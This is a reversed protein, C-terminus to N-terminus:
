LGLGSDAVHMPPAGLCASLEQTSSWAFQLRCYAVVVPGARKAICWSNSHVWVRSCPRVQDLLESYEMEEAIRQLASLPENFYVPLCVRSLDKGM